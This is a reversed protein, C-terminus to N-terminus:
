DAPSAAQITIVHESVYMAVFQKPFVITAVPSTPPLQGERHRYM